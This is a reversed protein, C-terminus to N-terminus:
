KRKNKVEITTKYTKTKGNYLKVKASITCTGISKAVLHGKKNVTVIKPNDSVFTINVAGIASSTTKGKSPVWELTSPLTVTYDTIAGSKGGKYLVKDKVSISIQDILATVKTKDPADTLLVYNSCHLIQVTVYGDADVTYMSSPLSELKNTESNYYYLEVKDGSKIGEQNAVYIRVTAQSPLDGHHSFNIVLGKSEEIGKTGAEDKNVLLDKVKSNNITEVSLSLNVDGLDQDSEALNNGTFTWAYQEKGDEDSISVTINKNDEKAASFLEKGLVSNINGIDERNQLKKPITVTFNVDRINENKIQELLQESNIPITIDQPKDQSNNGGKKALLADGTLDCTINLRGAQEDKKISISAETDSGILSIKGTTNESGEKNPTATPTPSVSPVGGGGAPAGGGGAPAGGGGSPAGGGGGSSGSPGTPQTASLAKFTASISHNATVNHFTYTTVAGIDISDVYISEVVYNTNPTIVFTKDSGHAVTQMENPSITGNARASVTISYFGPSKVSLVGHTYQIAYNEGAIAGSIAIIYNSVKSTNIDLATLVPEAILTEGSILGKGEQYHYTFIPLATNPFMEKNDAVMVINKKYISFYIEKSGNYNSLDDTISINCKYNGANKPAIKSSYGKDDTSTYLFDYGGSYGQENSPASPIVPKGDYTKSAINCNIIVSTVVAPNISYGIIYTGVYDGICTISINHLGISISDDYSVIYDIGQQLTTTGDVIKVVPTITKGTYVYDTGSPLSCWDAKIQKAIKGQRNIKYDNSSLIFIDTIESDSMTCNPGKIIVQTGITYTEVFVKKDMNLKSSIIFLLFDPTTLNSDVTITGGEVCWISRNSFINANEGIIFNAGTDNFIGNEYIYSNNDKIVGGTMLFTCNTGNYVGGGTYGLNNNISGGTMTFSSNGTNFVGGSGYTIGNINSSKSSNDYISGGSMIVRGNLCNYIGGTFLGDNDTITGGFMNFKGKNYIAAGSDNGRITVGSYMCVEGSTEIYIMDNIEDISKPIYGIASIEIFHETDQDGLSLKGQVIFMSCMVKDWDYLTIFSTWDKRIMHPNGDTVITVDGEIILPESLILDSQVIIKGIGKGIVSVAKGLSNFPSASSLGNNSDSAGEGGIYYTIASGTAAIADLGNVASGTAVKADTGGTMEEASASKGSVAFCLWFSMMILVAKLCVKVKM